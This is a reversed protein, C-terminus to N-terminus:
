LLQFELKEEVANCANTYKADIKMIFTVIKKKM